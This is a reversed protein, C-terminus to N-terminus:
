SCVWSIIRSIINGLSIKRWQKNQYSKLLHVTHSIIEENWGPGSFSIWNLLWDVSCWSLVVGSCCVTLLPVADEPRTNGQDPCSCPPRHGPDNETPQIMSQPNKILLPLESVKNRWDTKHDRFLLAHSIRCFGPPGFVVSVNTCWWHHGWVLYRPALWFGQGQPPCSPSYPRPM